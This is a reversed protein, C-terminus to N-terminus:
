ALGLGRLQEPWDLPVNQLLEQLTLDPRNKGSLLIETIQPSLTACEMMRKVYTSSLRTKQALQSVTGVEGSVIREYWDRARAIAKLLSPAPSREFCSSKPGALRVKGGRRVAQLEATLKIPSLAHEGAVTSCVPAHGLLTEALQLSDVEIWVTTQGVIVQRVVARFFEHQKATELQPWRKALELARAGTVDKELSETSREQSGLM